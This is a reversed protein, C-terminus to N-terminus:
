INIKNFQKNSLIKKRHFNQPSHTLFDMGPSEEILLFIMAWLIETEKSSLCSNLWPIENLTSQSNVLLIWRSDNERTKRLPKKNKTKVKKQLNKEIFCKKLLTNKKLLSIEILKKGIFFRQM